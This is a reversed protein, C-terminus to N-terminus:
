QQQIVSLVENVLQRRATQNQRLYYSLAQKKNQLAPQEALIQKVAEATHKEVVEKVKTWITQELEYLSFMKLGLLDAVFEKAAISNEQRMIQLCLENLTDYPSMKGYPHEM